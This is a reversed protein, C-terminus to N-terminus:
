HAGQSSSRPPVAVRAVPVSPRSMSPVNAPGTSYGYAPNGYGWNVLYTLDPQLLDALPNGVVPVYRLPDLLPLNATMGMYYTTHGTYGPEVPM